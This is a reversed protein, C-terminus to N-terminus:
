RLGEQTMQQYEQETSPNNCDQYVNFLEFIIINKDFTIKFLIKINELCYSM